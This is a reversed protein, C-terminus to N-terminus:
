FFFSIESLELVSATIGVPFEFCKNVVGFAEIVYLSHVSMPRDIQTDVAM